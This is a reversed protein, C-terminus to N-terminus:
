RHSMSWAALIFFIGEPTWTMGGLFFLELFGPTNIHLLAILLYGGGYLTMGIGFAWTAVLIMWHSLSQSRPRMFAVLVGALCIGITLVVGRLERAIILEYLGFGIVALYALLLAFIQLRKQSLWRFPWVLSLPFLALVTFLLVSITSSLLYIAYNHAFQPGLAFSGGGFFLAAHIIAFLLGWGFAAYATWQPPRHPTRVFVDSHKIM